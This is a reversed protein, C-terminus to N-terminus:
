CPFTPVFYRTFQPENPPRLKRFVRRKRQGQLVLSRLTEREDSLMDGRWAYMWSELHPYM